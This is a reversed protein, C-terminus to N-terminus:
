LDSYNTYITGLNRCLNCSDTSCSQLHKALKGVLFVFFVEAAEASDFPRGQWDRLTRASGPLVMLVENRRPDKWGYRGFCVGDIIISNTTNRHGASRAVKTPCSTKPLKRPRVVREALHRSFSGLGICFSILGLCRCVCVCEEENFALQTFPSKSCLVTCRSLEVGVFFLVFTM